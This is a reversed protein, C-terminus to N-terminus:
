LLRVPKYKTYTTKKSDEAAEVELEDEAAEVELEDEAAEVELEDEAAEVELEGEAAESVDSEVLEDTIGVEIEDAIPADEPDELENATVGVEFEDGAVEVVDNPEALDETVQAEDVATIQNFYWM